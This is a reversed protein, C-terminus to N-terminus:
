VTVAACVAIKNLVFGEDSSSELKLYPKPASANNGSVLVERATGESGVLSEKDDSHYRWIWM